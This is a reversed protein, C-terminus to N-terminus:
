IVILTLLGIINLFYLYLIKKREKIWSKNIKKIKFKGPIRGRYIKKYFESVIREGGALPRMYDTSGDAKAM